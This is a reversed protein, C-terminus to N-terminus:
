QGLCLPEVQGYISIWRDILHRARAAALESIEPKKRRLKADFTLAALDPLWDFSHLKYAFKESPAPILWPDGHAGVDLSQSGLVFRGDLIKMGNQAIGLAMTPPTVAFTSVRTTKLNLARM